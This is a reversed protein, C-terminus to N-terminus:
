CCRMANSNDRVGAGVQTVTLPAVRGSHECATAKGQETVQGVAGHDVPSLIPAGNFCCETYMCVDHVAESDPKSNADGDASLDVM